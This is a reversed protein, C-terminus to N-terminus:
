KRSVPTDATMRRLLLTLRCIAEQNTRGPLHHLEFHLLVGVIRVQVVCGRCMRRSEFPKRARLQVLALREAVAAELMVVQVERVAPTAEIFRLMENRTYIACLCHEACSFFCGTCGQCKVEHTHGIQLQGVFSMTSLNRSMQSRSGPPTAMWQLAPRPRVPALKM